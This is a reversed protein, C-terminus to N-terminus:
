ALLTMRSELYPHDTDLAPELQEDLLTDRRFFSSKACLPFQLISSKTNRTERKGEGATSVEFCVDATAEDNFMEQIMKVLPNNPVFVDTPEEEISVVITLTGNDFAARLKSFDTNEPMRLARQQFDSYSRRESRHWRKDPSEEDKASTESRRAGIRIINEDVDLTVDEKKM